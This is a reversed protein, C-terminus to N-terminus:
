GEIVLLASAGMSAVLFLTQPAPTLWSSVLTLALITIFTAAISPLQERDFALSAAPAGVIRLVADIM